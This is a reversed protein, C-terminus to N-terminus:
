RGRRKIKEKIYDINNRIEDLKITDTLKLLPTSNSEVYRIETPFNNVELLNRAIGREGLIDLLFRMHKLRCLWILWESQRNYYPNAIYLTEKMDKKYITPISKFLQSIYVGKNDIDRVVDSLIRDLKKTFDLVNFPHPNIHEKNPINYYINMLRNFIIHDVMEPIMNPIIYNIVFYNPDPDLDSYLRETRWQYYMMMMGTIDIDYVTYSNNYKQKSKDLLHFDLDTEETYLIKVPSYYRWNRIISFPDSLNTTSTFIEKSSNDYLINKFIKGININSVIGFQKSLYPSTTNVIEYYKILDNTAPLLHKILRTFINLNNVRRERKHYYDLIYKIQEKYRRQILLFESYKKITFNRNDEKRLFITLM